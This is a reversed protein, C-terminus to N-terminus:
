VKPVTGTAPHLVLSESEPRAGDAVTAMVRPLPFTPVKVAVQLPACSMARNDCYNSVHSQQTEERNRFSPPHGM